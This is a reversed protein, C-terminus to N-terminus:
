IRVGGGAWMLVNVMVIDLVVEGQFSHPGSQTNNGLFGSEELAGNGFIYGVTVIASRNGHGLYNCSGLVGIGVAENYGKGIAVISPHTSPTSLQGASLFLADGNGPSQHPVGLNQKQIFGGRSQIQLALLQNLLRQVRGTGSPGADYYGVAQGGDLVRIHDTDDLIALHHLLAAVALQNGLTPDVGFQM